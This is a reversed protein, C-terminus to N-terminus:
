GHDCLADALCDGLNAVDVSRAIDDVSHPKMTNDPGLVENIGCANSGSQAGGPRAGVPIKCRYDAVQQLQGVAMSPPLALTAPANGQRVPSAQLTIRAVTM